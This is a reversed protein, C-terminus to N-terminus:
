CSNRDFDGKEIQIEFIYNAFEYLMRKKINEHVMNDKFEIEFHQDKEIISFQDKFKLNSEIINSKKYIKKNLKM